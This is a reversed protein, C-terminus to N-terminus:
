RDIAAYEVIWSRHKKADRMKAGLSGHVGDDWTAYDAIFRNAATKDGEYQLQLVAALMARVTEHYRGYDISITMNAADVSILGNQRFFNFQMLQMTEHADERLPRVETMTRLIGAAYVERLQGASYHGQQHLVGAVHLAVLDAKLEELMGGSDQLASEVDQGDKTVDFGLYHGIEHWKTDEVDGRMTYDARYQPAVIAEWARQQAEAIPAADLLNARLAITRGHRRVLYSENPLITASNIGRAEGFDAIVDYVGISIETRVTRERAQPHPLTQQLAQLGRTADRAEETEKRRMRLLSLM